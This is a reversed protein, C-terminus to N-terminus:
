TAPRKRRDEGSRAAQRELEVGGVTVTLGESFGIGDVEGRVFVGDESAGVVEAARAVVADSGEGARATSAIHVHEGIGCGYKAADAIRDQTQIATGAAGSCKAAHWEPVDVELNLLVDVNVLAEAGFELGDEGVNEVMVLEQVREEAQRKRREPSNFISLPVRRPGDFHPDAEAELKTRGDRLVPRMFAPFAMRGEGNEKRWRM